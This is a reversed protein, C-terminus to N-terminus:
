IDLLVFNYIELDRIVFDIVEVEEKGIDYLINDCM